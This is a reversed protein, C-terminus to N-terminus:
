VEIFRQTYEARPLLCADYKGFLRYRNRAVLDYVQDRIRGPVLRLLAGLRWVGGVRRLVHLAAASKALLRETPAGPDVLVYFTDLARPDKGYRALVDRAFASQLSAFRFVGAPDRRLVFQNMRNCLRCVGDYLIIDARDPM